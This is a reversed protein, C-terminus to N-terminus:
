RTTFRFAKVVVGLTRERSSSYSQHLGRLTAGGKRLLWPNGHVTAKVDLRGTAGLHDQKRTTGQTANAIAIAASEKGGSGGSGVLQRAIAAENSGVGCVTSPPRPPPLAPGIALAAMTKCGFLRGLSSSPASLVLHPTATRYNSPLYAPVSRPLVLPM